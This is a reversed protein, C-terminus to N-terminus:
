SLLLSYREGWHYGQCIKQSVDMFEEVIPMQKVVDSSPVLTTLSIILYNVHAHNKLFQLCPVGKSGQLQIVGGGPINLTIRHRWFDITDKHKRLWDVGLIIDFDKFDLVYLNANLEMEGFRCLAGEVMRELSTTYGFPSTVAFIQRIMFMEWVLSKVLSITIFSATMGSDFLVRVLCNSILFIGGVFKPHEPEIQHGLVFVRGM